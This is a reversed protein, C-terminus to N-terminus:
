IGEPTASWDVALAQEILVDLRALEKSTAALREPRLEAPASEVGRRHQQFLLQLRMADRSGLLGDQYLHRAAVDTRHSMQFTAIAQGAIALFALSVVVYLKPAI